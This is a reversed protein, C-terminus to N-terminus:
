VAISGVVVIRNDVIKTRVKQLNVPLIVFLFTYKVGMQRIGHYTSLRAREKGKQERVVILINFRCTADNSITLKIFTVGM